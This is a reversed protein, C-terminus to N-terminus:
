DMEVTGEEELLVVPVPVLLPRDTLRRVSGGDDDDLVGDGRYELFIAIACRVGTEM